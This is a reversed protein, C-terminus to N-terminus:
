TSSPPATVKTPDAGVKEGHQAALAVFKKHSENDSEKFWREYRELDLAYDANDPDSKCAERYYRLANALQSQVEHLHAKISFGMAILMAHELVSLATKRKMVRRRRKCRRIM